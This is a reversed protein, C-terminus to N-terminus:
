KGGLGSCIPYLNISGDVRQIMLTDSELNPARSILTATTGGISVTDTYLATEAHDPLLYHQRFLWRLPRLSRAGWAYAKTDPDLGTAVIWWAGPRSYLTVTSDSYVPIADALSDIGPSFRLPLRSCSYHESIFYREFYEAHAAGVPIPVPLAPSVGPAIEHIYPNDPLTIVGDSSTLYSSVIADYRNRSETAQAHWVCGAAAALLTLSAAVSRRVARSKPAPILHTAWIMVMLWIMVGTPMFPRTSGLLRISSLCLTLIMAINVAAALAFPASQGWARRAARRTAPLCLLLLAAAMILTVFAFMEGVSLMDNLTRLMPSRTSSEMGGLHNYFRCVVSPVSVAVTGAATGAFILLARRSVSRAERYDRWLMWGLAATLPISFGEHSMGAILGALAYGTCQTLTPRSELTHARRMLWLAGLMLAGPLAYNLSFAAGGFWSRFIGFWPMVACFVVLAAMRRLFSVKHGRPMSLRSVFEVAATSVLAIFIALAAYGWLATFSQVLMHVEARGNHYLTHIAVSRLVDAVSEVSELPQDSDTPLYEAGQCVYAFRWDDNTMRSYPWEIAIFFLFILAPALLASVRIHRLTRLPPM